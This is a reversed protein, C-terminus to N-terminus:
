SFITGTVPTSYLKERLYAPATYQGRWPDPPYLLVSFYKLLLRGEFSPTLYPVEIGGPIYQVLELWRKM